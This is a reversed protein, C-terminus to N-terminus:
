RTAEQIASDGSCEALGGEVLQEDVARIGLYADILERRGRMEKAAGSMASAGSSLVVAEDAFDLALSTNQEVVLVTTHQVIANLARFVDNVVSPALGLSPEDLMLLRPAGLIARGIALMQQQGGSLTWGPRSRFEALIPFLDYVADIDFPSKRDRRHAVSGVQLNEEVSLNSFIRRGEPLQILGHRALRDASWGKVDHDMFRVTGEYPVLHSIARLTSSKGAGNAGLLAMRQGETIDLDLKDVALTTGYRVTLGRVELM